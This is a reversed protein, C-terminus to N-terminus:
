KQEARRGPLTEKKKANHDYSKCVGFKQRWTWRQQFMRPAHPEGGAIASPSSTNCLHASSQMTGNKTADTASIIPAVRDSRYAGRDEELLKHLNLVSRPALVRNTRQDAILM